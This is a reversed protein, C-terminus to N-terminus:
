AALVRRDFVVSRRLQVRDEQLFCYSLLVFFPAQLFVLEGVRFLVHALHHVLHREVFEVLDDRAAQILFVGIEAGNEDLDDVFEDDLFIILM